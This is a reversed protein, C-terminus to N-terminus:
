YIYYFLLYLSEYLICVCICLCAHINICQKMDCDFDTGINTDLSCYRLQKHCTQAKKLLKQTTTPPEPHNCVKTYGLKKNM